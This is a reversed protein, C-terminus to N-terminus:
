KTLLIPRFITKGEKVMKGDTTMRSLCIARTIITGTEKPIAMQDM